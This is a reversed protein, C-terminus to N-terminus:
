DQEPVPLACIHSCVICFSPCLGAAAAGTSLTMCLAPRVDANLPLMESVYM